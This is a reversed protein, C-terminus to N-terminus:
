AQVESGIGVVGCEILVPAFLENWSQEYIIPIASYLVRSYKAKLNWSSEHENLQFIM